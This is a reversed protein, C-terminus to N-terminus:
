ALARAIEKPDMEWLGLSGDAAKIYIWTHLRRTAAYPLGFIPEEEYELTYTGPPQPAPIGAVSFPNRVSLTMRRFQPMTAAAMVM